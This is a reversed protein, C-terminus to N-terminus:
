CKRAAEHQVQQRYTRRRPRWWQNSRASSQRWGGIIAQESVRAPGIERSLPKQLLESGLEEGFLTRRALLTAAVNTMRAAERVHRPDTGYM